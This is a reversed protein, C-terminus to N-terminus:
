NADTYAVWAGAADSKVFGYYAEVLLLVLNEQFASHTVGAEDVYSASDSVKISIDMGVGYAAQSWDGGIARLKTDRSPTAGVIVAPNTGGTLGSGNATIPGTAVGVAGLTVTYPGGASGSVTATSLGPLARLASQVTSSAANYALPATTAGGYTLTFTGGTPTGTITVAQVGNGNRRYTGSVGRNYAAPYGILNGAISGDTPSDVWLPRGQTDTTLKLTPKLRPDAAFGSFDYGADTVLKEGQVLDAFMGGTGQSATGLEVASAGKKLYDSFPGAGGTRLDLGHIAAYDFARAIATPLDQRLQAYLGAANTMAIEQSVPVLLAVKKGVMTKVSMAGSGVPKQGGESVWGAAPIDMSVPIATQANVSLPVRRALSMVASSEIAQDFIPGTITPPLLTNNISSLSTAM